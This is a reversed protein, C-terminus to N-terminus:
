DDKKSKRDGLKPEASTFGTHGLILELRPLLIQHRLLRPSPSDRVEDDEACLKSSKANQNQRIVEMPVDTPQAKRKKGDNYNGGRKEPPVHSPPKSHTARITALWKGPCIGPNSNETAITPVAVLLNDTSLGFWVASRVRSRQM